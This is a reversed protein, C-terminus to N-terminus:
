KELKPYNNRHNKDGGAVFSLWFCAACYICSMAEASAWTGFRYVWSDVESDHCGLKSTLRKQGKRENCEVITVPHQSWDFNATAALAATLRTGRPRGKAIWWGLCEPEARGNFTHSDSTAELKIENKVRRSLGGPQRGIDIKLRADRHYIWISADYQSLRMRAILRDGYANVGILCRRDPRSSAPSHARLRQM